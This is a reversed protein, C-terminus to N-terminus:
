GAIGMFDDGTNGSSQTDSVHAFTFSQSSADKTVLRTYESGTDVTKDYARYYYTTNKELDIEAKVVYFNRLASSEYDQASYKETYTPFEVVDTFDTNTSVQIVARLPEKQTNYTIGYVNNIPDYLTVTLSTPKYAKKEQDTYTRLPEGYSFTETGVVGCACSKYYIAPSTYTAEEKLYKSSPNEETYDHDGLKNSFFTDRYAKEGCMTCSKYYEAGKQCTAQRRLYKEDEIEASFDCPITVYNDFFEEGNEGCSCSYYYQDGHKCTAAEKLHAEEAVKQDFVHTHEASTVSCGTSFISVTALLLAVHKLNFFKM